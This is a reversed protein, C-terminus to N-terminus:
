RVQLGMFVVSKMKGNHFFHKRLVGEKTFGSSLLLKISPTNGVFVRASVKEIPTNKKVGQLFIRLAGQMYGKGRYKEGLWYAIEWHRKCFDDVVVGIVGVIKRIEKPMIVLMLPQDMQQRVWKEANGLDYKKPIYTFKYLDSGSLLSSIQDVDGLKPPRLLVYSNKYSRTFFDKSRLKDM